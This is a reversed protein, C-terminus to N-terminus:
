PLSLVHKSNQLHENQGSLPIWLGFPSNDFYLPMGVKGFAGHLLSVNPYRPVVKTIACTRSFPYPPLITSPASTSTLGDILLQLNGFRTQIYVTFFFITSQNKQIGVFHAALILRSDAGLLLMGPLYLRIVLKGYSLRSSPFVTRNGFGSINRITLPIMLYIM